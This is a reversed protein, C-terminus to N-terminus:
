VVGTARPGVSLFELVRALRSGNDFWAPMSTNIGTHGFPTLPTYLTGSTASPNGATTLTVGTIQGAANITATGTAQIGSSATFTVRPASAYGGGTPNAASIPQGNLNNV